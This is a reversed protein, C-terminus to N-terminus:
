EDRNTKDDLKKETEIWERYRIQGFFFYVWFAAKIGTWNLSSFFRRKSYKLHTPSIWVTALQSFISQIKKIIITKSISNTLVIVKLNTPIRFFFSIIERFLYVDTKNQSDKKSRRQIIEWHKKKEWQFRNFIKHKPLDYKNHYFTCHKCYRTCETLAEM